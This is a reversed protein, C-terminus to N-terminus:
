LTGTQGRVIARRQRRVLAQWGSWRCPWCPLTRVGEWTGGRGFLADNKGAGDSAFTSRTLCIAADQPRACPHDSAGPVALRNPLSKHTVIYLARDDVIGISAAASAGQYPHHSGRSRSISPRRRLTVPSSLPLTLGCAAFLHFSAVQGYAEPIKRHWEPIGTCTPAVV